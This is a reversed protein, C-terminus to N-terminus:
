KKYCMPLWKNVMPLGLNAKMEVKTWDDYEFFLVTDIM